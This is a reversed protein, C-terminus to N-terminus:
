PTPNVVCYLNAAVNCGKEDDNWRRGNANGTNGYQGDYASSASTWNNCNRDADGVDPTNGWETDSDGADQRNTWAHVSVGFRTANSWQTGGELPGVGIGNTTFTAGGATTSGSRAYAYVTNPQATNCTTSDCILAKVNGATLAATAKGKWDNAQLDSLCKADAGARGGLNGNWTASTLVLYGDTPGGGGGGSVDCSCARRAGAMSTSKGTVTTGRSRTTGSVYCGMTNAINSSSGTGAAGLADLVAGCNANNGSSGAYSQTPGNSDYTGGVATCTDGCSQSAVGLFWCANSASIWTGGGAACNIEASADPPDCACARHVQAQFGAANTTNTSVRAGTSENRGCGYSTGPGGFTLAGSGGMQLADLVSQCNTSNAAGAAYTSTANNYTGGINTCVTTCTQGMDGVFWCAGGVETGGAYTCNNTSSPDGPDVACIYRPTTSSCSQSGGTWRNANTNNSSGTGAFQMASTSTWDVCSLIGGSGTPWLTATGTTKRNTWYSYNGGFLTAGNWHTANGPGRGTADTTFSAGGADTAGMRAFFYESNPKLDGCMSPDDVEDICLFPKVTTSNVTANNKGKWNKSKLESMCLRKAGAWGGFDANKGADSMVLYGPTTAGGGGGCSVGPDAPTAPTDVACIMRLTTNCAEDDHEWRYRGTNDMEGTPGRNANSSSTWNNCTMNAATRMPTAAWKTETGTGRNSWQVDNLGSSGLDFFTPDIWRGSNNPGLGAADTTFTAGGATASGSRAFTYTTNPLLQPCTSGSCLMARVTSSNLVANEKGRWNNAQLDSLCRANAGAIGGMNGNYTSATIVFYNSASQGPTPPVPTCAGCLTASTNAPPATSAFSTARTGLCSNATSNHACCGAGALECATKCANQDFGSSFSFLATSPSNAGSCGKDAEFTNCTNPEPVSLVGMTIKRISVVTYTEQFGGNLFAGLDTSGGGGSAYYEIKVSGPAAMHFTGRIISEAGANQFNGYLLVSSDAVNILRTKMPVGGSPSSADIYYTGEPLSIANGALSAGSLNNYVQTNLTRETWTNDVAPGGREGSPQIEAAVFLAPPLVPANTQCNVLSGNSTCWKGDEVTGIKPDTEASGILADIYAKTVADSAAVPAGLNTVKNGAANLDQKAVHDGLHDGSGGTPSSIGAMAVWKDGDCFQMMKHGANYIQDGENGAPDVCQAHAIGATSLLVIAVTLCVVFKNMYSMM